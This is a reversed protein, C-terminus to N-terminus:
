LEHLGFSDPLYQVEIVRDDVHLMYLRDLQFLDHRHQWATVHSSTTQAIPKLFIKEKELM